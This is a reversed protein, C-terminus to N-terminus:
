MGLYEFHHDCRLIFNNYCNIIETRTKCKTKDICDSLLKKEHSEHGICEFDFYVCM